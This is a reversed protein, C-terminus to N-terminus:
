LFIFYLKTKHITNREYYMINIINYLNLIFINAMLNCYGLLGFKM